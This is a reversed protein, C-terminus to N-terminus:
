KWYFPLTLACRPPNSMLVGCYCGVCYYGLLPVWFHCGWLPVWCHGGYCGAIAGFLPVSCYRGAIAGFTFGALTRVM